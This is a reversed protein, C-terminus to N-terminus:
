RRRPPAEMEVGTSGQVRAMARGRLGPLEPDPALQVSVSVAPLLHCLPIIEWTRKAAQIGGLEAVRIADGKPGGRILRDLTEPLMRIWGEAVAHRTTIEKESVDVMRPRGEADLHTLDTRDSM